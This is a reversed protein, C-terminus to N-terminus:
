VLYRLRLRGVPMWLVSTKPMPTVRWPDSNPSILTVSKGAVMLPTIDTEELAVNYSVDVSHKSRLYKVQGKLDVMMYYICTHHHYGERGGFTSFEV